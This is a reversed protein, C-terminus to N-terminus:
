LKLDEKTRALREQEEVMENDLVELGNQRADAELPFSSKTLSITEKALREIERNLYWVAKKLDEIENGKLGARLIYKIANGRCFNEHETIQIVEIGSPHSTYHKPHNVSDNKM